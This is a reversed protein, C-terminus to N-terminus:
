ARWATVARAYGARSLEDLVSGARVEGAEDVCRCTLDRDIEANLDLGRPQGRVVHLAARNCRCPLLNCGGDAGLANRYDSEAIPDILPRNNDVSRRPLERQEVAVAHRSEGAVAARRTSVTLQM